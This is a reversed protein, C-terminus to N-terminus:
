SAPTSRVSTTTTPGSPVAASATTTTAARDPSTGPDAPHEAATGPRDALVTEEPGAGDGAHAVRSGTLVLLALAVAGRRARRQNTRRRVIEGSLVSESAGGLSGALEARARAARRDLDDTM